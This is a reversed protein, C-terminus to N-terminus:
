LSVTFHRSKRKHLHSHEQRNSQAMRVTPMVRSEASADIYIQHSQKPSMKTLFCLDGVTQQRIMSHPRRCLIEPKLPLSEM